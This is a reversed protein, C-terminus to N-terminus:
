LFFVVLGFSVIVPPPSHIKQKVPKKKTKKTPDRMESLHGHVVEERVSVLVTVSM